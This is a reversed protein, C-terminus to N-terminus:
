RIYIDVMEIAINEDNGDRCVQMEIDDTTSEPLEKYFWPPNNFTCCTNLPGCGAGDWLPDDGYFLNNIATGQSGTDCFYDDGVFAPPIRTSITQNINTCPCNSPPNGVESQASVFTWIHQRPSGYVLNIGDADYRSNFADMKGVQYAKIKGCVEVFNINETSYTVQHCTTSSPTECTRISSDMRERLTGPCQANSGRMDLNAVRMWGGTVGGCSLTMDCYVRVASGNSSFISYYGSPSSPNSLFIASCSNPHFGFLYIIQQHIMDLSANMIHQKENERVQIHQISTNLTGTLDYIQQHLVDLSDNTIQQKENERVQIQEISTKVTGVQDYIQQHLVDLSVNTIQQKENERVQIQEISTNWTGALDNLQQQLVDLTHSFVTNSSSIESKFRFLELLTYITCMCIASLVLVIVVIAIIFKTNSEKRSERTVTSTTTHRENAPTHVQGYCINGNSIINEMSTEEVVDYVSEDDKNNM